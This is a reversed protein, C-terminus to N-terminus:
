NSRHKGNGSARGPVRGSKLDAKGEATNKWGKDVIEVDKELRTRDVPLKGKKLVKIVPNTGTEDKKKGHKAM